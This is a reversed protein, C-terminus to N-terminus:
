GTKRQQETAPMALNAIYAQEADDCEETYRFAERQVQFIVNDRDSQDYRRNTMLDALMLLSKTQERDDYRACIARVCTNVIQDVEEWQNPSKALRLPTTHKPM